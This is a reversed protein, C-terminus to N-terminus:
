RYIGEAVGSNPIALSLSVCRTLFTYGLSMINLINLVFVNHICFSGKKYKKYKLRNQPKKFTENSLDIM